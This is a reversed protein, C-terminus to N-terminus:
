AGKLPLVFDNLTSLATANKTNKALVVPVLIM